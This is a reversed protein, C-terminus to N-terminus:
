RPPNPRKPTPKPARPKTSPARRCRSSHPVNAASAAGTTPPSANCSPSSGRRSRLSAPLSASGELPSALCTKRRTKWRTTRSASCACRVVRSISTGGDGDSGAGHSLAAFATQPVRWRAVVDVRAAAWMTRQHHPTSVRTGSGSLAGLEGGACASLELASEHLAIPLCALVGGAWLGIKAGPSRADGADLNGEREPLLTGLARLEFGPWGLEFGLGLGWGMAPLTGTDGIVYASGALAPGTHQAELELSNGAPQAPAAELPASPPPSAEPGPSGAPEDGATHGGLALAIALAVQQTLEDCTKASLSRVGRPARTGDESIALEARFGPAAAQVHVHFRAGAAAELAHGLSREVQFELDDRIICPTPEDLIIEAAAARLPHAGAALLV